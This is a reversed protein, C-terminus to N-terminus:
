KISGKNHSDMERREGLKRTARQSHTFTVNWYRKAQNGGIISGSNMM